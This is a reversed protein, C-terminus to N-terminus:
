SRFLLYISWLVLVASAACIALFAIGCLSVTRDRPIRAEPTEKDRMISRPNRTHEIIQERTLVAPTVPMTESWQPYYIRAM